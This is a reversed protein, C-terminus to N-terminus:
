LMSVIHYLLPITTHRPLTVNVTCYQSMTDFSVYKYMYMYRALIHYRCQRMKSVMNYGLIRKVLRGRKHIDVKFHAERSLSVNTFLRQQYKIIINKKKVKKSTLLLIFNLDKKIKM